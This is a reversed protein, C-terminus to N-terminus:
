LPLILYSRKSHQNSLYYLFASTAFHKEKQYADVVALVYALTCMTGVVAMTNVELLVLPCSWCRSNKPSFDVQRCTKLKMLLARIGLAGYNPYPNEVSNYHLVIELFKCQSLFNKLGKKLPVYNLNYVGDRM